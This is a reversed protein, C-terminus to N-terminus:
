PCKTGRSAPIKEEAATAALDLAPMHLERARSGNADVACLTFGLRRQTVAWNFLTIANNFLEKYTKAGIQSMLRELLNISEEPLDLQIRMKSESLSVNVLLLPHLERVSRNNTPPM